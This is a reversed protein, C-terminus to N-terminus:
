MLTTTSAYQCHMWILISTLPDPLVSRIPSYDKVRIAAVKSMVAVRENPEINIGLVLDRCYGRIEFDWVFKDGDGITGLFWYSEVKKWVIRLVCIAM